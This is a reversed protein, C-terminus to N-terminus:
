RVGDLGKQACLAVIRRRMGVNRGLQNLAANVQELDHKQCAVLGKILAGNARQRPSGSNIATNALRNALDYDASDYAAHANKLTEKVSEDEDPGGEDPAPDPDRKVVVAPRKADPTVAAVGADLRAPPAVVVAPADPLVAADPMVQAVQVAADKPPPDKSALPRNAPRRMVVYMIAITAAICALGGLILLMPKKRPPLAVATPATAAAGNLSDVTPSSARVPVGATVPVPTAVPSGFDGSGVTDGLADPNSIKKSGSAFGVENPPKTIMSPRFTSLASGTLAEVFDSVTEFREESAKSMARRIANAIHDPVSSAIPAPQEYVVKFVVEPISAGTFAPQGCLMEYVISGLAFVDTRQDVSDHRGTAQEPAMYQPTGLLASEQTKVTESGRWKSIGFDLVKAVEVMRGDVEMPVLFINQPKLDRHVIGERHAAALASGVQRVILNVHDLPMPGAAIRQALTMGELFELVLYPVGDPTVDFDHVEVINPHNVRTAIQAERKFRLQIDPDTIETHLVKIAVRKDTLTRHRAVFVAGMGGRGILAEIVYKDIVSGVDIASRAPSNAMQVITYHSM